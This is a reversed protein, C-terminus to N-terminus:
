RRRKSVLDAAGARIPSTISWRNTCSCSSSALSSSLTSRAKRPPRTALAPPPPRSRAVPPPVVASSSAVDEPTPMSQVRLVPVASDRHMAKKLREYWQLYMTRDTVHNEIPNDRLFTEYHNMCVTCPLFLYTWFLCLSQLWDPTSDAGAHVSPDTPYSSVVADLFVWASAGWTKPDISRVPSSPASSHATAMLCTKSCEPM